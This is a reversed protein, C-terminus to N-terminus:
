NIKRLQVAPAGNVAAIIVTWTGGTSLRTVDSGDAKQLPLRMKAQKPPDELTDWLELDTVFSTAGDQVGNVIPFELAYDGDEADEFVEAYTMELFPTEEGNYFVFDKPSALVDQVVQPNYDVHVPNHSESSQPMTQKARASLAIRQQGALQTLMELAQDEVSM